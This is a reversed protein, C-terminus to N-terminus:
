RRLAVMMEAPRPFLGTAVQSANPFFRALLAADAADVEDLLVLRVQPSTRYDGHVLDARDILGERRKFAAAFASLTALYVNRPLPQRHLRSWHDVNLAAIAQPKLGMLYVADAGSEPDLGDVRAVVELWARAIVDNLNLLPLGALATHAALADAPTGSLAPFFLERQPAEVEPWREGIRRALACFRLRTPAFAAIEDLGIGAEDARWAIEALATTKGSGEPGALFANFRRGSKILGGLRDIVDAM